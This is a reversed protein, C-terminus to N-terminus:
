GRRKRTSLAPRLLAIDRRLRICEDLTIQWNMMASVYHAELATVYSRAGEQKRLAKLEAHLASEHKALKDFSVIEGENSYCVGQQAEKGNFKCRPQACFTEFIARRTALRVTKHKTMAIVGTTCRHV